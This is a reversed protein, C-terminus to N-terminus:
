RTPSPLEAGTLDALRPMVENALLEMSHRWRPGDAGQWDYCLMLLGGFGGVDEYLARLKRAVTDPSGVVWRTAFLYENTIEDEQMDDRDYFLNLMKASRLLPFFYQEYHQGAHCPRYEYFLRRATDVQTVAPYDQCGCKHEDTQDYGYNRM